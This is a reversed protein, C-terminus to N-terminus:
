MQMERSCGWMRSCKTGNKEEMPQGTLIMLHLSASSLLGGSSLINGTKATTAVFNLFIGLMGCTLCNLLM